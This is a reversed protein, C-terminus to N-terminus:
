QELYEIILLCDIEEGNSSWIKVNNEKNFMSAKQSIFDDTAIQEYHENEGSISTFFFTTRSSCLYIRSDATIKFDANERQEKAHRVGKEVTLTPNSFTIFKGNFYSPTDIFDQVLNENEVTIDHSSTFLLNTHRITLYGTGAIGFVILPILISLYLSQYTKARKKIAAFAIYGILFGISNFILDDVDTIGLGFVFQVAEIFISAGIGCALISKKDKNLSVPLILGLPIFMIINGLVNELIRTVSISDRIMEFISFFPIINIIRDSSGIAAFLKNLPAQKFLTIRLLLLIYVVFIGLICYRMTKEKLNLENTM